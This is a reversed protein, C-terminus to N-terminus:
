PEYTACVRVVEQKNDPHEGKLVVVPYVHSGSRQLHIALRFRAVGQEDGVDIRLINIADETLEKSDILLLPEAVNRALEVTVDNTGTKIDVPCPVEIKM